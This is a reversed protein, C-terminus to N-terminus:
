KCKVGEHEAQTRLCIRVVAAASLRGGHKKELKQKIRMFLRDEAVTLTVPLRVKTYDDPDKNKTMLIGYTFITFRYNCSLFNEDIYLIFTSRSKKRHM